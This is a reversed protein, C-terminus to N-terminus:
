PLSAGDWKHKADPLFTVGSDVAVLWGGPVKAREAPRSTSNLREWQLGGEEAAGAAPTARGAAAAAGSPRAGVPTKEISALLLESACRYRHGLFVFEGFDWALEPDEIVAGFPITTPPGGLPVGTRPNLKSVEITKKL